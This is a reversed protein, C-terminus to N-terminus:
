RKPSAQVQFAKIKWAVYALFADEDVGAFDAADELIQSSQAAMEAKDLWRQATNVRRTLSNANDHASLRPVYRRPRNITM